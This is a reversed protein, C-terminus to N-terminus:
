SSISIYNSQTPTLNIRVMQLNSQNDPQPADPTIFLLSPTPRFYLAKIKDDNLTDTRRGVVEVAFEFLGPLEYPDAFDIWFWLAEPEKFIVNGTDYDLTL